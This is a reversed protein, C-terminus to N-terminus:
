EVVLSFLVFWWRIKYSDEMFKPLSILFSPISFFICVCWSLLLLSHNLMFNAHTPHVWALSRNPTFCCRHRKMLSYLNCCRIWLRLTIWSVSWSGMTQWWFLTFRIIESCRSFPRWNLMLRSPRLVAPWRRACQSISSIIARVKWLVVFTAM